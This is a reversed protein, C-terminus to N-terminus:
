HDHSAGSKEIDAKILYSNGAVYETGPKLGGLVETTQGDSRGLDLMRVEYTEGVKAFVVTFDRFAQLASNQVVLPADAESTIVDARVAMGPSWRGEPNDLVVRAHRAPGNHGAPSIYAITGSAQMADGHVTVPQGVRVLDLQKPFVSLQVWVTSYDAVTLLAGDGAVEGASAMREVILGDMPATLTYRQLSDDAEVTVLREGRTVSDGVSKTVTRILGPFRARVQAVSAPDAAIRGYLTLTEAVSGPGATATTIDSREAMDDSITVRGEHSDYAWEGRTGQYDASVAVDFSHPETVIGDGRLYDGSPAFDFRNIEGDLRTLTVSAVVGALAGGTLQEGDAYAYLRYEPPVGREFITVEVSLDGSTLLRGGHPGKAEANAMDETAHAGHAHESDTRPKPSGCATLMLAAVLPLTTLFRITM